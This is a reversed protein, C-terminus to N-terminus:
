YENEANYVGEENTILTRYLLEDTHKFLHPHARLMSRTEENFRDIWNRCIEHFAAPLVAWSTLEKYEGFLDEVATNRQIRAYSSYREHGKSNLRSSNYRYKIISEAVRAIFPYRIKRFSWADTLGYLWKHLYKSEPLFVPDKDNQSLFVMFRHWDDSFKKVFMKHCDTQWVKVKDRYKHVFRLRIFCV